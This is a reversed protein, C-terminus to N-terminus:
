PTLVGRRAVAHAWANQFVEGTTILVLMPVALVTAVVAAFALLAFLALLTAPHRWSWSTAEGSRPRHISKLM